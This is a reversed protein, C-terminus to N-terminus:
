KKTRRKGKRKRKRRHSPNPDRDNGNRNQGRDARKVSVLNQDIKQNQARDLDLDPNRKTKVTIIM